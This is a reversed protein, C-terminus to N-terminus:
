HTFYWHTLIFALAAGNGAGILFGYFLARNVTARREDREQAKAVVRDWGM